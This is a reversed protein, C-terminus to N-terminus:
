KLRFWYMYFLVYFPTSVMDETNAIFSAQAVYVENQNNYEAGTSVWYTTGNVTKNNNIMVAEWCIIVM